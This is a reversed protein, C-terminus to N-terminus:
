KRFTANAYTHILANRQLKLRKLISSQFFNALTTLFPFIHFVKPIYNNINRHPSIIELDCIFDICKEPAVLCLWEQLKYSNFFNSIYPATQRHLRTYFSSVAVYKSFSVFKVM